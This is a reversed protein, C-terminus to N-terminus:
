KEYRETKSLVYVFIGTTLGAGISAETIAVDPAQLILYFLSVLLGAAATALVAVLLDRTLWAVLASVLLFFGLVGSIILIVEPM